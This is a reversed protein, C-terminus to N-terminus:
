FVDTHHHTKQQAAPRDKGQGQKEEQAFPGLAEDSSMIQKQLARPKDGGPKMAAIQRAAV